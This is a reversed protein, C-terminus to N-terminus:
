IICIQVLASNINICLNTVARGVIVSSWTEDQPIDKINDVTAIKPEILAITDKQPRATSFVRILAELADLVVHENSAFVPVDETDSDQTFVSCYKSRFPQITHTAPLTINNDIFYLREAAWDLKVEFAKIIIINDILMTGPDLHSLVLAEMPLSKNGPKRAFRIYGLCKRPSGGASRLSIDGLPIPLVRNGPIDYNQMTASSIKRVVPYTENCFDITLQHEESDGGLIAPIGLRTSPVRTTCSSVDIVAHLYYM